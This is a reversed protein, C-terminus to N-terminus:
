RKRRRNLVLLLVIAGIVAVICVAGVIYKGFNRSKKKKRAQVTTDHDALATTVHRPAAPAPGGSQQGADVIQSAVAPASARASVSPALSVSLASAM